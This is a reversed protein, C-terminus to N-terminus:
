AAVLGLVLLGQQRSPVDAARCLLVAVLVLWLALAPVLVLGSAGFLPLLLLCAAMRVARRPSVHPGSGALLVLFAGAVVTSGFKTVYFLALLLLAAWVGWVFPAAGPMAGPARAPRQRDPAPTTGEVDSMPM